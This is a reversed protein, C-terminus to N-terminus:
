AISNKWGSKLCTKWIALKSMHRLLITQFPPHNLLASLQKFPRKNHLSPTQQQLLNARSLEQNGDQLFM